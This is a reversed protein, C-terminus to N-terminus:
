KEDDDNANKLAILFSFLNLEYFAM